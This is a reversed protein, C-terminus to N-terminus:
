GLPSIHTTKESILNEIQRRHRLIHVIAHEMLQEFSYTEKWRTEFKWNEIESNTKGWIAGFSTETFALMKKLETIGSKPSDINGKYEQWGINSESNIYNIYTYGSQVVHYTIAKVSSCDPVESQFGSTKEFDTQSIKHLVTCYENAAKKYEEILAILM